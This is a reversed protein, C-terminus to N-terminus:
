KNKISVKMCSLLLPGDSTTAYVVPAYGNECKGICTQPHRDSLLPPYQYTIVYTDSSHEDDFADAQGKILNIGQIEKCSDLIEFVRLGNEEHLIQVKSNEKTLAQDALTFLSIITTTCILLFKFTKKM